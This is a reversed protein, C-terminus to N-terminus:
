FVSFYTPDVFYLASDQSVRKRHISAVHDLRVLVRPPNCLTTATSRFLFGGVRSAFSVSETATRDAIWITRWKTVLVDSAHAQTEACCPQM